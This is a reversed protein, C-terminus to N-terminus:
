RKLRPVILLGVTYYIIYAANILTFVGFVWKLVMLPAWFTCMSLLVFFFMSFFSKVKLVHKLYAYRFQYFEDFDHGQNIMRYIEIGGSGQVHIRNAGHYRRLEYSAQLMGWEKVFTYSFLYITEKPTSPVFQFLYCFVVRQLRLGRKEYETLLKEVHDYKWQPYLIVKWM